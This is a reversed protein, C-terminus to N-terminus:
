GEKANQEAGNIFLVYHFPQNNDIVSVPQPDIRAIIPYDDTLADKFRQLIIDSPANFQNPM